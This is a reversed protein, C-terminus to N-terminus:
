VNLWNVGSIKKMMGIAYIALAFNWLFQISFYLFHYNRVSLALLTHEGKQLRRLMAIAAVLGSSVKGISM